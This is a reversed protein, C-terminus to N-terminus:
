PQRYCQQTSSAEALDDWPTIIATSTDVIWLGYHALQTREEVFTETTGGVVREVAVEVTVIEKGEVLWRQPNEQYFTFSEVAPRPDFCDYSAIWVLLGAQEGTVVAPFSAQDPVGCVAAAEKALLDLPSIVATVANVQWLGYHTIASKGEVIWRGVDDPHAAFSALDPFHDYCNFVNVWVRLEAQEQTSVLPVPTPVPTPTHTAVLPPSGGTALVAVPDNCTTGPPSIARAVDDLPTVQGTGDVVQWRGLSLTEDVSTVVITWKGANLNYTTAFAVQVPTERSASVSDACSRVMQFILREVDTETLKSAPIPTATPTPVATPTSTAMLM